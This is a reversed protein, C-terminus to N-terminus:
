INENMIKTLLFPFKILKKKRRKKLLIFHLNKIFFM